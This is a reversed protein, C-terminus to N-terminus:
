SGSPAVPSYDPVPELEAGDDDIRVMPPNWYAACGLRNGGFGYYGKHM